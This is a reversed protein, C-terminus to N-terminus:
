FHLIDFKGVTASVVVIDGIYEYVCYTVCACQVFGRIVKVVFKNLMM